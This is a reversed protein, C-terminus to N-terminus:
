AAANLVMQESAPPDPLLGLVGYLRALERLRPPLARVAFGRRDALCARRCALLVALASSDFRTLAAGDIVVQSQAEARAAELLMELCASAQVHTLEAPLVLM